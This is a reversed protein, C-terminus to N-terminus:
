IKNKKEREAESWIEPHADIMRNLDDQNESSGNWRGCHSNVVPKIKFGYEKVIEAYAQQEEFSLSRIRNHIINYYNGM